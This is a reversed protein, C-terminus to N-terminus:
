GKWRAKTARVDVHTFTQYRGIGGSNLLIKEVYDAVESPTHGKVVIDAANGYLHQSNAAGGVFNNKSTTRFGSNVTVPANFHERIKDLVSVMDLNLFTIKSDACAFEKVKFYKGCYTEKEDAGYACVTAKM